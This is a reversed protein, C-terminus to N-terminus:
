FLTWLYKNRIMSENISNLTATQLFINATAIFEVARLNSFDLWTSLHYITELKYYWYHGSGKFWATGPSKIVKNEQVDITRNIIPTDDCQIQEVNWTWNYINWLYQLYNTTISSYISWM